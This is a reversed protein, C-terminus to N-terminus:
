QDPHYSRAVNEKVDSLTLWAPKFDGEAYRPAQDFHHPSSPDANAGFTHLTRAQVEPGFEVVAVYSNGATGYRRKTGESARAYFTFM